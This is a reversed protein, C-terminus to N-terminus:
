RPLPIGAFRFIAVIDAQILGSYRLTAPSQGTGFRCTLRRGGFLANSESVSPRLLNGKEDLFSAEGIRSRIAAPARGLPPDPTVIVEVLAPDTLKATTITLMAGSGRVGRGSSGALPVDIPDRRQGVLSFPVSIELRRLRRSPPDPMSLPAEIRFETFRNSGALMSPPKPEGPCLSRGQEDDARSAFPSNGPRFRLGPGPPITPNMELPLDLIRATPEPYVVLIAMFTERTPGLEPGVEGRRTPVARSYYEIGPKAKGFELRRYRKVGLLEGRFAGSISAPGPPPSPEKFDLEWVAGLRDLALGSKRCLMEFAEWFSVDGPTVLTIRRREIALERPRDAQALRIPWGAAKGLAAM